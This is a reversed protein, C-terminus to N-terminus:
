AQMRRFISHAEHDAYLQLREQWVASQQHRKQGEHAAPAARELLFLSFLLAAASRPINLTQLYKSVSSTILQSFWNEQLIARQFAVTPKTWRWGDWPYTYNTFFLFLDHFPWAAASFDEWDIVGLQGEHLMLNGPWYDGHRSCMPIALGEYQRALTRLHQVFAKPLPNSIRELHATLLAEGALTDMGSHTAQQMQKLWTLAQQCDHRVQQPSLRQQRRLLVKLPTGPLCQELLVFNKEFMFLGLPRPVTTQLAPNQWVATLAEHEHQLREQYGPTRAVKMMLIPLSHGSAFVLFNVKRDKGRAGGIQIASLPQQLHIGAQCLPEQWINTLNQLLDLLM